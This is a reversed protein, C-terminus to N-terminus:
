VFHARARSGDDNLAGVFTDSFLWAVRGDPLPVSYAGDAGTNGPGCTAFLRNFATDGDPPLAGCTRETAVPAPAPSRPDPEPAATEAALPRREAPAWSRDGTRLRVDLKGARVRSAVRASVRRGRGFGSFRVYVPKGAVRYILVFQARRSARKVRLTVARGPPLMASRSRHSVAARPARGADCFAATRGAALARRCPAAIAPDAGAAARAISRAEVGYAPPTYLCAAAVVAGAAAGARVRFRNAAVM